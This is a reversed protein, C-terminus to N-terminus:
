RQRDVKTTLTVEKSPLFEVDGDTRLQQITIGDDNFYIILNGNFHGGHIRLDVVEGSELMYDYCEPEVEIRVPKYTGNKLVVYEFGPSESDKNTM